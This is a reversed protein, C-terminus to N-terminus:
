KVIIVDNEPFKEKISANKYRAPNGSVTIRLIKKGKKLHSYHPSIIRACKYKIAAETLALEKAEKLSLKELKLMGEPTSVDITYTITQPDVVLDYENTSHTVTTVETSTIGSGGTRVFASCSVELLCIAITAIYFIYKMSTQKQNIDHTQEHLLAKKECSMGRSLVKEVDNM